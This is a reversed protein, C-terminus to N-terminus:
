RYRSPPGNGIEWEGTCEVCCWCPLSVPTKCFLCLPMPDGEETLKSITERAYNLTDRATREIRGIDRYFIFRYVKFMAHNPLHPKKNAAEFTVTSHVCESKSCLNVTPKTCAM